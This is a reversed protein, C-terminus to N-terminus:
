FFREWFLYIFVMNPLWVQLMAGNYLCSQINCLFCVGQAWEIELFIVRWVFWVLCVGDNINRIPRRPGGM